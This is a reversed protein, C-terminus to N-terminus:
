AQTVQDKAAGEGQEKREEAKKLQARLVQMEREQVELENKNKDSLEKFRKLLDAQTVFHPQLDISHM